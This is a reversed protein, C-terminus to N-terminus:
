RATATAAEEPKLREHIPGKRDRLYGASRGNRVALIEGIISWAVEEPGDGGLDLGCPGHIKALDQRSPHIGDKALEDLLQDLRVRPGLSGIYAVDTGLFSRLYDVDRLFNHSMLVVYTRPDVGAASAAEGAREVPVFGAAGPFREHTLFNGREDIVLVQWGLEGAFRVLPIADHGAGCVLLRLPPELVEIFARMEGAGAALKKTVSKGRALAELAEEAAVDDAAPSGLSGERRGDPHVLMRSGREIEPLSAELVTVASLSREEELAHRLAGAVEGAKEAPEVFVEIAGNCGLGYGWVAEDDSTLDFSALQPQGGVMVIRAVEEVDTDVCGGSINGVLEGTEPVLLRAGPRRYTSGRAAVVTALAMREGRERLKEIADLVDSIEGM